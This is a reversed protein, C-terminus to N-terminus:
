LAITAGDLTEEGSGETPAAYMVRAGAHTAHTNQGATAAVVSTEAM